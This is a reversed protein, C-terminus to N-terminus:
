KYGHSTLWHTAKSLAKDILFQPTSQKLTQFAREAEGHGQAAAIGFWALADVTHHENTAGGNGTVLAWGLAYQADLYGANASKTMYQISTEAEKSIHFLMGMQYLAQPDNSAAKVKIEGLSKSFHKQAIAELLRSTTPDQQTHDQKILGRKKMETTLSAMRALAVQHKAASVNSAASVNNKHLGLLQILQIDTKLTYDQASKFWAKFIGIVMGIAVVILLGVPVVGLSFLAIGVGVGIVMAPVPKLGMAASFGFAIVGMVASTTALTSSDFSSPIMPM